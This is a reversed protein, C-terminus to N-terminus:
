EKLDFTVSVSHSITIEEPNTGIHETPFQAQMGMVRMPMGWHMPGSCGISVVDGVKKGALKASKEADAKADAMAAKRVREVVDASQELGYIVVSRIDDSYSTRSPIQMLAGARIAKDIVQYIGDPMPKCTIRIRRAVQPRPAEEKQDSRWYQTAKEGLAVDVVSVNKVINSESKIAASVEEILKDAKKVADVMLIGDAQAYVTVYATDPKVKEEAKGAVSITHQRDEGYSSLALMSAVAVSVVPFQKM